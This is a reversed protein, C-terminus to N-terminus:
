RVCPQYFTREVGYYIVYNNLLHNGAFIKEPFLRAVGVFRVAVHRWPSDPPLNLLSDPAPHLTQAVVFILGQL